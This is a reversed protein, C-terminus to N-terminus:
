NAEPTSSSHDILKLDIMSIDGGSQESRLLVNTRLNPLSAM